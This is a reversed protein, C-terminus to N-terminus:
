QVSRTKSHLFRLARAPLAAVHRRSAAIATAGTRRILTLALNRLARTEARSM